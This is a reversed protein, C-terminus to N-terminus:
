DIPLHVVVRTGGDPRPALMIRGQHREVVGRVIGLGLGCGIRGPKTSPAVAGSDDDAAFIIGRGTDSIELRVFKGDIEARVQLVGVGTMADAANLVLNLVLQELEAAVGRVAPLEDDVDISITVRDSISRAFVALVRRVLEGLEVASPDPAGGRAYVLVNHNMRVASDAAIRARQMWRPADPDGHLSRDLAFDVVQLYNNMDHAVGSAIRGILAYRDAADQRRAVRRPEAVAAVAGQLERTGASRPLYM